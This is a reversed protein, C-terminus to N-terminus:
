KQFPSTSEWVGIGFNEDESYFYEYGRAILNGHEPEYPEFDGLNKGALRDRDLRVVLKPTAAQSQSFGFEPVISGVLVMAVSWGIFGMAALFIRWSFQPMIKLHKM